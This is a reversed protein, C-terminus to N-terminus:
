ARRERSDGRPANLEQSYYRELECVFDRTDAGAEFRRGLRVRYELPFAPKRFLSWGKGLFPSSTEIFVTQVPAHARQAIM